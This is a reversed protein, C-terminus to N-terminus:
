EVSLHALLAQLPWASPLPRAQQLRKAAQSRRSRLPWPLRMVSLIAVNSTVSGAHQQRSGYVQAAKDLEDHSPHTAPPLSEPIAVGNKNWQYSLSCHQLPWASPLPRGRRSLRAQQSRTISPAVPAASATFNVGTINAGNVDRKSKRASLMARTNRHLWTLGMQWDPLRTIAPFTRQPLPV